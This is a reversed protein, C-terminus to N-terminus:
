GEISRGFKQEFERTAQELSEATNQYHEKWKEKNEKINVDTFGLKKALRIAEKETEVSRYLAIEDARTPSQDREPNFYRNFLRDFQKGM